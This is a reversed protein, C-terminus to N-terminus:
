FCAPFTLFINNGIQKSSIATRKKERERSKRVSISDIKGVPNSAMADAAPPQEPPEELSLNLENLTLQVAAGTPETAKALVETAESSVIFM